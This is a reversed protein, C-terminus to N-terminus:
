FAVAPGGLSSGRNDNAAGEECREEDDNDAEPTDVDQDHSMKLSRVYPRQRASARKEDVEPENFAPLWFRQLSQEDNRVDPPRNEASLWKRQKHHAKLFDITFTRTDRLDDVHCTLKKGPFLYKM